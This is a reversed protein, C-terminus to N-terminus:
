WWNMPIKFDAVTKTPVDQIGAAIVSLQERATQLRSKLEANEPDVQLLHRLHFEAAFWNKQNEADRAASSQFQRCRRTMRDRIAAFWEVEQQQFVQPDQSQSPPPEAATNRVDLRALRSIWEPLNKPRPLPTIDWVRMSKGCTLLRSGDATFAVCMAGPHSFTEGLPVGTWTNWLRIAQGGTTAITASDRSFAVNQCTGLSNERMPDGITTWTRTDWLNSTRNVSNAALRTGDPSFAVSRWAFPPDSELEKLLKLSPVDLILIKRTTAAALRQGDPSFSVGQVFGGSNSSAVFAGTMGDWLRTSGDRCGTALLKGDPSFTVEDVMQPHEMTAGLTTGTEADWLRVCAREKMGNQNLERTATALRKGDSSLAFSRIVGHERVFEGMAACTFGDWRHISNHGATFILRGDPSVKVDMIHHGPISQEMIPENPFAELVRDASYLRTGDPHFFQTGGRVGPAIPETFSMGTQADWLRITGDSTSTALRIGDPSFGVLGIQDSHWIPDCIRRGTRSDWLRATNSTTTAVVVGDPSFVVRTVPSDHPLPGTLPQGTRGDWLRATNDHSGTVLRTGDQNFAISSIAAAHQMPEGLPTATLGNWLRASTGDFTTVIRLGDPSFASIEKGFYYTQTSIPAGLPSGTQLDWIQVTKKITSDDSNNVTLARTGDPSVALTPIGSIGLTLKRTLIGTTADWIRLTKDLSWGILRKNNASFVFNVIPIESPTVIPVGIRSFTDFDVIQWEFTKDKLKPSGALILSGDPSRADGGTYHMPGMLRDLLVQEYAAHLEHTKPMVKWANALDKMGIDAQGSECESIGHQFHTKALQIQLEESKRTADDANEDARIRQADALEKAKIAAVKAKQADTKASAEAVALKANKDREVNIWLAAIVALVAIAASSATGARFLSRHKRELRTLRESWTEPHAEVPEDALWRELDDALLRPSQYRQGAELSMAKLCIAELAPPTGSALKGPRIFEGERVRKM